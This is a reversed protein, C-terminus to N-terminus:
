FGLEQSPVPTLTHPQGRPLRGGNCCPPLVSPAVSPGPINSPPSTEDDRAGQRHPNTRPPFPYCCCRSALPSVSPSSAPTPQQGSRTPLVDSRRDRGHSLWKRVAVGFCPSRPHSPETLSCLSRCLRPFTALGRLTTALRQRPYGGAAAWCALELLRRTKAMLRSLMGPLLSAPDRSGLHYTCVPLGKPVSRTFDTTMPM